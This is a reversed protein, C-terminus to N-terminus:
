RLARSKTKIAGQPEEWSAVLGNAGEDQLQRAVVCQRSVKILREVMNVGMRGLGM